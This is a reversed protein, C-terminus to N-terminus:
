ENQEKVSLKNSFLKCARVYMNTPGFYPCFYSKRKGTFPSCEQASAKKQVGEICVFVFTGCISTDSILVPGLRFILIHQFTRLRGLVHNRFLPDSNSFNTWSLFKEADVGCVCVDKGYHKFLNYAVGRVCVVNKMQFTKCRGNGSQMERYVSMCCYMGVLVHGVEVVTASLLLCAAKM